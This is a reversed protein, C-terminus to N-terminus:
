DAPQEAQDEFKVGMKEFGEAMMSQLEQLKKVIFDQNTLLAQEMTVLKVEPETANEEPRPAQPEEEKPISKRM